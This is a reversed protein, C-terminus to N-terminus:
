GTAKEAKLIGWLIIETKEKGGSKLGNMNTLFNYKLSM